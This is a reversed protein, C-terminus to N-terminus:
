PDHDFLEWNFHELALLRIHVWVVGIDANWAKKESHDQVTLTECYVESTIIIGQQTFEVMLAGNRDWFDTAM